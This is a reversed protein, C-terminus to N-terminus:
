ISYWPRNMNPKSIRFLWFFWIQKGCSLKLVVIDTACKWFWMRVHYLVCQFTLMSLLHSCLLQSDSRLRRRERGGESELRWSISQQWTFTKVTQQCFHWKWLEIARIRDSCAPSLGGLRQCRPSHTIHKPTKRLIIHSYKHKDWLYIFELHQSVSPTVPSKHCEETM